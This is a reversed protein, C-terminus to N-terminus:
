QAVPSLHENVRLPERTVSDTEIEILRALRRENSMRTSADDAHSCSRITFFFRAFPNRSQSRRYLFLSLSSLYISM